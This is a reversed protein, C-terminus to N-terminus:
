RDIEGLVFDLSGLLVVSDAILTGPLAQEGAQLAFLGPPRYRLRYPSDSGDTILHVGLEGRPSEVAAYTEGAPPRLVKAVKATHEGEPLGDICQEIMRAAQRMEDLRVRCRAYIDGDDSVPVEFNMEDYAAYSRDRRLDYDIGSARLNGGTLGYALASQSSFAGVGQTRAQFIENGMLIEDNEDIHVAFYKLFKRIKAEATTTIDAVVGGPRIYNFMMRGGSIDELIDLLYERDRFVYLFPGMAGADLGTPGYWTIHSSIRNLEGVLVRLWNARRPVEVELLQETALAAALEGHVSGLYDGRDMLTGLANFRRSEAVKEIGRHLYGIICESAVVEEGDIELNVRLVGHTSPHQPGMSLILRETQLEDVGTPARNLGAPLEVPQVAGAADVGKHRPRRIAAAKPAPQAELSGATRYLEEPAITQRERHRVEDEGRIEIEKLLLAPSGDTTLLRKPNPHGSLTLGFLEALEREPMLVAPYIDWVSALDSGYEHAAKVYLEEDRSFCRVHYVADVAEGTDVGFMDVLFDFGLDGDKLTALVLRTDAPAVRYVAGLKAVDEVSVAVGARQLAGSVMAPDPTRL